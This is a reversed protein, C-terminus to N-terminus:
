GPATADNDFLVVSREPSLAGSRMAFGEIHKLHAIRGCNTHSCEPKEKPCSAYQCLRGAYMGDIAAYLFVDVQHPAIHFGKAKALADLARNTVKQIERLGSLDTLWVALDVDNCEHPLPIRWRRFRRFRPVEEVLPNAVSGFLVIRKVQPLRSLEQAVWKAALVFRRQRELLARREEEIEARDPPENESAFAAAFEAALDDDTMLADAMDGMDNLLDRGVDLSSHPVHSLHSGHTHAAKRAAKEARAEYMEDIWDRVPLKWQQQPSPINKILSLPNLGMEKARKVHRVSLRCRRKAEAWQKDKSMQNKAM